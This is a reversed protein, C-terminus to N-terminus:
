WDGDEDDGDEFGFADEDDADEGDADEGDADGFGFGDEFADDEGDADEDAAGEGGVDWGRDAAGYTGGDPADLDHEGTGHGRDVDEHATGPDAPDWAGGPSAAAATDTADDGGSAVAEEGRRDRGAAALEQELEDVRRHLHERALHYGIVAGDIFAAEEDQHEAPSSGAHWLREGRSPPAERPPAPRATGAAAAGGGGPRGRGPSGGASRRALVVLVLVALAGWAVLGFLLDM